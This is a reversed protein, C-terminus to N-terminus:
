KADGYTEGFGTEVGIPLDPCWLPRRVMIGEIDAAIQPADKALVVFILEDHAQMSTPLKLEKRIARMADKAIIQTLAQTVNEVVKGGWITKTMGGFDYVWGKYKEGELWRLNNYVINMGNPLEIKNHMAMCPGIRRKGGHAMIELADDCFDWLGPIEKYMGRYTDVWMAATAEDIKLKETSTRLSAKLKKPGMGYGLGLICTKGVFRQLEDKKTIPKRFLTSAFESYIDKELAFADVLIKCGSEWANTRAEIQKFDATLIVHHKPARIAFRIQRRDLPHEMVGKANAVQPQDTRRMKYNVRNFNQVNISQTGGYRGTLAAYYKLPVRFKKYKRAIDLLRESRAEVMTSKESQRAAMIPALIPHDSYEEVLDLWQPDNKAFAYTEKGTTPSIKLPLDVGHSELLAAFKQNSMLDARQFAAPLKAILANKDGRVKTLIEGLLTADLELQPEFYMRLTLDIIEFEERPLDKKLTQFTLYTGETDDISYNAYAQLEDPSLSERTRGLMQAVYSGKKVTLKLYDLISGLSMSRLYPKLLAQAMCMTDMLIPPRIGFHYQNILQDFMTNQCLLASQHVKNDYLFQKTSKMTGSHWITPQANRKLTVLMVHFRPGAVYDETSLKRLSFEKDYYTEYDLTILDV